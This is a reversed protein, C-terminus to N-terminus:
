YLTPKSLYGEVGFSSGACAIRLRRMKLCLLLPIRRGAPNDRLRRAFEFGDADSLQKDTIILDPKAASM